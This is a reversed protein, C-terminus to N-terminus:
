GPSNGNAIRDGNASVGLAKMRSALTTPKIALLEAAGGAGSVKGKAQRLALRINDAELQRLEADILVREAPALPLTTTKASTSAAAPLEIALRSGAATIVAREIVHQLERV